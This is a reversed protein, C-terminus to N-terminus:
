IYEELPGFYKGISDVSMMPTDWWVGTETSSQIRHPTPKPLGTYPGHLDYCPGSPPVHMAFEWDIIYPENSNDLVVNRIHIDRHCVGYETHLQNIKKLLQQGIDVRVEDSIDEKMIFDLAPRYRAMRIIFKDEDISLVNIGIGSGHLLKLYSAEANFLERHNESYWKVVVDDEYTIVAGDRM